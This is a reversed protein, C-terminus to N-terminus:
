IKSGKKYKMCVLLWYKANLKKIYIKYILMKGYYSTVEQVLAEQCFRMTQPGLISSYWDSM